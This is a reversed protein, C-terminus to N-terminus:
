AFRAPPETFNSKIKSCIKRRSGSQLASFGILSFNNEAAPGEHAENIWM